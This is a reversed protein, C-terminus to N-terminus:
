SEDDRRVRKLKGLEDVELGRVQQSIKDGLRSWSVEVSSSILSSPPSYGDPLIGVDFGLLLFPAPRCQSRFYLERAVM